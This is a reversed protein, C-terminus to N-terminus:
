LLVEEDALSGLQLGVVTSEPSNGALHFIGNSGAPLGADFWRRPELLMSLTGFNFWPCFKQCTGTAFRSCREQCPGDSLFSLLLLNEWFHSCLNATRIAMLSALCSVAITSEPALPHYNVGPTGTDFTFLVVAVIRTPIAVPWACVDSADQLNGRGSRDGPRKPCIIGPNVCLRKPM